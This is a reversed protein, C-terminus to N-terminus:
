SLLQFVCHHKKNFTDFLNKEGCLISCLKVSFRLYAIESRNSIFFVVTKRFEDHSGVDFPYLRVAFRQATRQGSSPAIIRGEDDHKQLRGGQGAIRQTYKVDPM